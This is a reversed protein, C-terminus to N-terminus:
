GGYLDAPSVLVVERDKRARELLAENFGAGGCLVLRTGGTDYRGARTIAERVRGLRELHGLGMTDNWKAEGIALLPPRTAGDPIGVVALDVEYSRRAAQDTVTGHGVRAPLGGFLEPDAHHLAWERCVQEFHPGLVNSTFRRRSAQWVREAAGPRELQDWVPRMIAHHFAILPEAIQYTSRKERFADADRRLLGADELVNIPHAIDVAKRGLHGAIGGRTANGEAVAGLVSLYLATDRLDPEEALLYRAERFLPTEPNLVTRIVWDDFDDPGAPADGRAFERRYAPTGGVVAHVQLALRPDDDVGWFRAAQRHDLTPVVLELGARGRLPATGSLLRGMFSLASGCLLLRTRSQTRQERLPGFAQQLISPLEPNAKALYPFEDIVVPVPRERGLSLLADAVESWDAFHYATAPKAYETLAASMRRLSVADTAETAGFYFGDAARCIADLLFTKGQRRRGSVVGLTAGPQEDTVFRDLASWERDRDFMEAPKRM